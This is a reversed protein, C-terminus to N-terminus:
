RLLFAAIDDGGTTIATSEYTGNAGMSVLRASNPVAPELLLYPRGWRSLASASVTPATLWQLYLTATSPPKVFPDAVGVVDAVAAGVTPSGAGNTLLSAGVRVYGNGTRSLYPGHWGRGSDPNWVGLSHFVDITGNGNTDEGTDLIGNNNRDESLPNQFLQWFNAPCDFWATEAGSAVYDPLNAQPVFGGARSNLNFPGQTPFHGTDERFRLLAKKLENIESTVLHQQARTETQGLLVIAAGAIIAMVAVVILLELLTFGLRSTVRTGPVIAEVTGATPAFQDLVMFKM